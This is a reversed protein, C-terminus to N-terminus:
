KGGRALPDRLGDLGLGGRSLLPPVRKRVLQTAYDTRPDCRGSPGSPLAGNGGSARTNLATPAGRSARLTLRIAALTVSM